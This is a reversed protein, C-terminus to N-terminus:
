DTVTDFHPKVDFKSKSTSIQKLTLISKPTSILISKKSVEGKV